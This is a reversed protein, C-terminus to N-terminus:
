GGLLPFKTAKPFLKVGRVRTKIRGSVIFNESRKEITMKHTSNKEKASPSFFSCNLVM